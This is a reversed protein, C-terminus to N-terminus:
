TNAHTVACDTRPHGNCPGDHGSFRICFGPESYGMPRITQQSDRMRRAMSVVSAHRERGLWSPSCIADVLEKYLHEYNVPQKM